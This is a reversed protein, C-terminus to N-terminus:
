CRMEIRAKGLFSNEWKKVLSQNAAVFNLRISKDHSFIFAVSAGGNLWFADPKGNPVIFDLASVKRYRPM